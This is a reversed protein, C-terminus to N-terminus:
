FLLGSKNNSIFLLRLHMILYIRSTIFVSYQLEREEFFELKNFTYKDLLEIIAFLTLFGWKREIHSMERGFFQIQHLYLLHKYITQTM